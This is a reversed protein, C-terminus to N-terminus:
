DLYPIMSELRSAIVDPRHRASEVMELDSEGSLVLVTLVGAANGSAVDTYLRDGVMATEETAAGLLAMAGRLFDPNPKGIVRDPRRGTSAEIAAMFSGADPIPGTPTPCNVDPNTAVYPLGARLLTCATRLKEYTLTRDFGLVVMEPDEATLGLGVGRFEEELSPTGLLFVRRIGERHLIEATAAGSTLIDEVPVTVGMDAFRAAYGAADGSSNNTLFLARRGTGRVRELFRDSGSIMHPGISFTGDMDLLFLRVKGLGELDGRIM